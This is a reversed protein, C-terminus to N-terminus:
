QATKAACPRLWLVIGGRQIHRSSFLAVKGNCGKIGLLRQGAKRHKNLTDAIHDRFEIEIRHTGFAQNVCGPPVMAMM